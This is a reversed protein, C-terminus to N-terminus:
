QIVSYATPLCCSGTESRYYLYVFGASAATLLHWAAHAQLWSDPWCIVGTIDVVWCTCALALSAIAGYFFSERTRVVPRLRRRCLIESALVALILGVFIYRRSVPWHVAIAGLALNLLLYFVVVARSSMQRARSLNYVAMFSTLLYMSIVDVSQGAFTMSSHYFM